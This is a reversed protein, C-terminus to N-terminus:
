GCTNLFAKLCIGTLVLRELESDSFHEVLVNDRCGCIAFLLFSFLDEELWQRTGWKGMFVM